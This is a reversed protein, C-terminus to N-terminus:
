FNSLFDARFDLIEHLNRTFSEEQQKKEDKTPKKGKNIKREVEGPVGGGGM